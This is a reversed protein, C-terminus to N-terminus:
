IFRLLIYDILIYYFSSKYIYGIKKRSCRRWGWKDYTLWLYLINEAHNNCDCSRIYWIWPVLLNELFKLLFFSFFFTFTLHPYLSFSFFLSLYLCLSLLFSSFSYNSFLSFPINRGKKKKKVYRLFARIKEMKRKKGKENKFWKLLFCKSLIM